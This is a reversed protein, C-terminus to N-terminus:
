ADCLRAVAESADGSVLVYRSLYPYLATLYATSDTRATSPVSLLAAFAITAADESDIIQEDYLHEQVNWWLVKVPLGSVAIDASLNYALAVTPLAADAIVLVVETGSMASRQKVMLEGVRATIKWHIDRTADGSRYERIDTVESFDNGKRTSETAESEGAAYETVTEPSVPSRMPLVTYRCRPASTYVSVFGMIDDITISMATVVHLGIGDSKPMVYACGRGLRNFRLATSIEETGGTYINDIQLLAEASIFVGFRLLVVSAIGLASLAVAIALLATNGMFWYLWCFILVTLTYSIIRVPHYQLAKPNRAPKTM